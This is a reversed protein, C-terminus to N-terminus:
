QQSITLWCLRAIPTSDTFTVSLKGDTVTISKTREVWLTDDSLSVNDIITAGEIQVNETGQPFSADGACVTVSYDGNPIEIEWISEPDVHIMTDYAQDPSAPNDRERTSDTLPATIWGYGREANFINGNDAQYGFPIETMPPQFNIAYDISSPSVEITVTAQDSNKGKDDTVILSVQFSGVTSFTHDPNDSTDTPSGDGFNWLYSQVTGDTDTSEFANFSVTLPAIGGTDSVSIVAVPAINEVLIELNSSFLFYGVKESTHRTEDDASQEEEVLIQIESNTKNTYRLTATDLGDQSQMTGLFIPSDPLQERYKVTYWRNRVKNKTKNVIVNISELSTQTPEWAIYSITENGHGAVLQQEQTKHEFSTTSINRLRATVTDEENCTVISTMVVPKVTFATNFQVTQFNTDNSDFKGAEVLTGDDLTFNGQEMVLYGITERAHTGDLYDWEQIRIDFGTSTINRLRVVCPDSDNRSPAGAVVVPNMFPDSFTIRIWNHDTEVEGLEIQFEPTGEKVNITTGASSTAGKDDTVTLTATFSGPSTYTHVPAIGQGSDGDGFNWSYTLSSDNSATSTSGDFVVKLPVPGDTISTTLRATPVLDEESEGTIIVPTTTTDQAGHEDTVTLSVSYTAAITYQHQATVETTPQSGDGFNWLYSSITGETDKSATGDFFVTFPADGVAKSSSISATPPTNEAEAENVTITTHTSHTQGLTNTVTLTTTYIGATTFTHDTRSSTATTGDGFGWAYSVASTSSSGNFSVTLPANGSFTAPTIIAVPPATTVVTVSKQSTTGNTGTVTLTANFTGATTYIHRNQIGSGSNNDGFNWAYTSINGTSASADFSVTFPINGSLSTPLNSFDALLVPESPSNLTLTYPPSHPSEHGDSCFATLTFDFTGNESEFTFDMNRENPSYSTHVIEGEQYLYYGVQTRGEAPVYDYTWEMHINQTAALSYGPIFFGFSLLLFFLKKM